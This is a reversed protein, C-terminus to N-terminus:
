VGEIKARKAAPGSFIEKFKAEYAAPGGDGVVSIVASKSDGDNAATNHSLVLPISLTSGKANSIYRFFPRAIRKSEAQMEKTVGGVRRGSATQTSPEAASAAASGSGGEGDGAEAGLKSRSRSVQKKLM